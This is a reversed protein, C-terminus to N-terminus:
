ELNPSSFLRGGEEEEKNLIGDWGMNIDRGNREFWWLLVIWSYGPPNEIDGFV